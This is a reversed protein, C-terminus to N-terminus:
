SDKALEILQQALKPGHGEGEDKFFVYAGDWDQALIKEAVKAVQKKTYKEKRLRLYGWRATAIL